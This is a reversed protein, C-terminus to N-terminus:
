NMYKRKKKMRLGQLVIGASIYPFLNSQTTMIRIMLIMLIM